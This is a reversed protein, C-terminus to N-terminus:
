RLQARILVCCPFASNGALAELVGLMRLGVVREAIGVSGMGDTNGWARVPIVRPIKSLRFAASCHRHESSTCDMGVPPSPLCLGPDPSYRLWPMAALSGGSILASNFGHCLLEPGEPVSSSTCSRVVAVDGSQAPSPFGELYEMAELSHGIANKLLTHSKVHQKSWRINFCFPFSFPLFFGYSM